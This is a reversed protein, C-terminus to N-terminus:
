HKKTVPNDKRSDALAKLVSLLNENEPFESKGYHFNVFVWHKDKFEVEPIVVPKDSKKGAYIGYVDVWQTKGKPIIKGIVYKDANEANTSTIPDFDLGVIEDPVESSAKIDAKLMTTLHADFAQPKKELATELTKEPKTSYWDYFQQVFKGGANAPQATAGAPHSSASTEKTKESPVSMASYTTCISATFAILVSIALNRNIM